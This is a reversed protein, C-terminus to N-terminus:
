LTFLITAVGSALNASFRRLTTPDLAVDPPTALVEVEAPLSEGENGGLLRNDRGVVELNWSGSGELPETLVAYPRNGNFVARGVINEPDVDGGPETGARVEISKSDAPWSTAQFQIKARNYPRPPLDDGFDTDRDAPDVALLQLYQPWDTPVLQGVVKRQTRSSTAGILSRGAYLQYFYDNGWTTSFSISLASPGVWEAGTIALGGLYPAPM